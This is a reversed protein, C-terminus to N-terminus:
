GEGSSIVNQVHGGWELLLLHYYRAAESDAVKIKPGWNALIPWISDGFVNYWFYLFLRLICRFCNVPQIQWLLASLFLTHPWTAIPFDSSFLSKEFQQRNMNQEFVAAKFFTCLIYVGTTNLNWTNRFYMRCKIWM